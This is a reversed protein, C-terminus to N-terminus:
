QPKGFSRVVHGDSDPFRRIGVIPLEALRPSQLEIRLRAAHHEEIAHFSEAPVSHWLTRAVIVESSRAAVHTLKPRSSRASGCAYQGYESSGHRLLPRLHRAHHIRVRFNNNRPGMIVRADGGRELRWRNWAAELHAPTGGADHRRKTRGRQHQGQSRVHAARRLPAPVAGRREEQGGRLCAAGQAAVTWDFCGDELHIDGPQIEDGEAMLVTREIVNRLERVNGPWDHAILLRLARANLRKPSEGTPVTNELFLNALLAIDDVRDRLPPLMIPMVSLRYYLDKRLRGERVLRGPDVNTATVIRVDVAVTSKGGIPRVEREQLARLLKGQLPLPMSSLEDIFLTGGNAECFIGARDRHAGTYAGRKSGFMEAEALHEPMAAANFAVFAADKRPSEAHVARAVLEKGTGSEGLIMVTANTVAVRRVAEVVSVMHRDRTRLGHFGSTASLEARLLAIERQAEIEKLAMRAFLVLEDNHFPKTIYHFAGLKMAEVASGISGYGTLLIVRTDPSRERVSLLLSVGDAGPMKIDSIVLDAWRRRLDDLAGEASHAVRIDDSLSGLTLAVGRALDRNDDVVLIAPSNM